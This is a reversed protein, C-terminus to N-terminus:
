SRDREYKQFTRLPRIVIEGKAQFISKISKSSIFIGLFHEELKGDINKSYRYTKGDEFFFGIPQKFNQDYIYYTFKRDVYFGRMQTELYGLFLLKKGKTTTIANRLLWKKMEKTVRLEELAQLQNGQPVELFVEQFRSFSEDQLKEDASKRKEPKKKGKTSKVEDPTLTCSLSLFALILVLFGYHRM